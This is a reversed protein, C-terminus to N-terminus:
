HNVNFFRELNHPDFPFFFFDEPIETLTCKTAWTMCRHDTYKGIWIADQRTLEFSTEKEDEENSQKVFGLENKTIRIMRLNHYDGGADHMFGVRQRPFIVGMYMFYCVNVGDIAISRYGDDEAWDAIQLFKPDQFYVGQLLLMYPRPKPTPKPSPM